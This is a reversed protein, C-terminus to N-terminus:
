QNHTAKEADCCRQHPLQLAAVYERAGRRSSPVRGHAQTSPFEAGLFRTQEDFLRTCASQQFRQVQAKAVNNSASLDGTEDINKRGVSRYTPFRADRLGHSRNRYFRQHQKRACQRLRYIGASLCYIPDEEDTKRRTKKILQM